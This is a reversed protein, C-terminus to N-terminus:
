GREPSTSAPKHEDGVASVWRGLTVDVQQPDYGSGDFTSCEGNVSLFFYSEPM